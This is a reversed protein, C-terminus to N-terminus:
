FVTGDSVIALPPEGGRAEQALERGAAWTGGELVAALPLAPAQLRARVRDALEDLLAVTLARWEVVLESGVPQPRAAVGPDRLRLVGSDLLLGGNRYEPLGTLADADRVAIGAWTFPEILSYALWQSLKHFPVWGADPGRHGAPTALRHRWCDGLPVGGLAQGSPWIPAFGVVLTELIAAAPVATAGAPALSGVLGGPRGDRGFRAPDSALARGLANMLRARQALGLLPNGPGAQFIRALDAETLAVLAAADVRWPWARDSSFAGARFADFTAIALGESRTWTAPSDAAARGGQERYRWERGAGADLLVSVVALDVLARAVERVDGGCRDHLERRLVAHRDSGGAEFHRWRSHGPVALDPFRRRTLAAVREAAADLRTRDVLFSASDGGAVGELIRRSRLRIEAPSRLRAIAASLEPDPGAAVETM